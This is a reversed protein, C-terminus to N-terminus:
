HCNVEKWWEIKWGLTSDPVKYLSDKLYSLKPGEYVSFNFHLGATDSVNETKFFLNLYRDIMESPFSREDYWVIVSDRYNYLTSDKYNVSDKFQIILSDHPVFVISDHLVYRISDIYRISDVPSFVFVTDSKKNKINTYVRYLTNFSDSLSDLSFKLGANEKLLMNNELVEQSNDVSLIESISRCGIGIFCIGLVMIILNGLYLLKMKKM